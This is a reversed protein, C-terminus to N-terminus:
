VSMSYLRLGQEAQTSESWLGLVARRQRARRRDHAGCKSTDVSAILRLRDSFGHKDLLKGSMLEGFFAGTVMFWAEDTSLHFYQVEILM